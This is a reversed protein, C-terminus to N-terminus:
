QIRGSRQAARQVYSIFRRQFEDPLKEVIATIRERFAADNVYRTAISSVGRYSEALVALDRDNQQRVDDPLNDLHAEALNVRLEAIWEESPGTVQSRRLNDALAATNGLESASLANVFWAYSYSPMSRTIESARAACTTAVAQRKDAPQLRGYVGEIADYCNDLVLRSSAVSLAAVQSDQELAAFHEQPVSGGSLYSKAEGFAAFAGGVCLVLAGVLQLLHVSKKRAAM